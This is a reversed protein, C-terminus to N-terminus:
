LGSFATGVGGSAGGATSRDMRRQEVAGRPLVSASSEDATALPYFNRDM